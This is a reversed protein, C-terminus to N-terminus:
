VRLPFNLMDKPNQCLDIFHIFKTSLVAAWNKIDAWNKVRLAVILFLPVSLM